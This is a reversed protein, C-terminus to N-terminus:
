RSEGGTRIERVQDSVEPPIEQKPDPLSDPPDILAFALILIPFMM